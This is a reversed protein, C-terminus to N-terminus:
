GQMAAADAKFADICSAQCSPLDEGGGGGFAPLASMAEPLGFGPRVGLITCM